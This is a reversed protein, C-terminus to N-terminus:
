RAEAERRVDQIDRLAEEYAMRLLRCALAPLTRASFKALLAHRARHVRSRTIGLSAAFEDDNACADTCARDLVAREVDDLRHASAHRTLVRTLPDPQRTRATQMNPLHPRQQLDRMEDDLM